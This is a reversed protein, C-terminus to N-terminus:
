DKGPKARLVGVQILLGTFDYHRQEHLILGDQMEFMRMGQIQFRRNSGSLGMFEGVHTATVVFQQAVRNGDILLADGKFTWDPFTAFLARYSHRIADRGTRRGFMPSVVTGHEAHGAALADPDRGDWARQREAFFSLVNDRTM